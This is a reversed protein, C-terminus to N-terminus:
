IPIVPDYDLSVIEYREYPLLFRDDKGKNDKNREIKAILKLNTLYGHLTAKNFERGTKNKVGKRQIERLTM